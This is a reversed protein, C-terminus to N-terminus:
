ERPLFEFSAIMQADNNGQNVGDTGFHISQGTKWTAAIGQEQSYFFEYGGRLLCTSTEVPQGDGLVKVRAYPRGELPTVEGLSFCDGYYDDILRELDEDGEIRRVVIEWIYSSYDRNAVLQLDNERWRCGAFSYVYGQGSPIQTAETLVVEYKSTIYVRDDGEVVVVPVKGPEPRYSYDGEEHWYCGADERFMSTPVRMSFGLRYNTYQNWEVDIPALEAPPYTSTPSPEPTATRSPTPAASPTSATPGLPLGRDRAPSCAPLTLLLCLALLPVWHVKM